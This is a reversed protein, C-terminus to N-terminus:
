VGVSQRYMFNPAGRHVWIEDIKNVKLKSQINRGEERNGGSTQTAYWVCKLVSLTCPIGLILGLLIDEVM